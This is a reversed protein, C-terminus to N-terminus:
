HGAKSYGGNLRQREALRENRFQQEKEAEEDKWKQFYQSKLDKEIVNNSGNLDALKYLGAKIKKRTDAICEGLFQNRYKGTTVSYDWYYSDLTIKNTERNRKAIISSYSQFIYDDETIIEYQNAVPNGTRPSNLNYVKINM